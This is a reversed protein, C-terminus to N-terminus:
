GNLGRSYDLCGDTKQREYFVDTVKLDFDVWVIGFSEKLHDGLNTESVGILVTGYNLYHM